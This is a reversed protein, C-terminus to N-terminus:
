EGQIAVDAVVTFYGATNTSKVRYKPYRVNDIEWVITADATIAETTSPIDAYVGEAPNVTGQLVVSGGALATPTFTHNGVGINTINVRGTTSGSAAYALANALTDYLYFTNASIKAVFYDTLLSIGTPETGSTTVQGKLGTVFGHANVTIIDSTNWNAAASTGASPAVVDVVAKIVFSDGTLVEFTDSYTDGTVTTTSAQLRKHAFAM